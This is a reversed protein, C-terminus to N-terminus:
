LKLSLPDVTDQLQNHALAEYKNSAEIVERFLEIGRNLGHVRQENTRPTPNNVEQRYWLMLKSEHIQINEQARDLAQSTATERQEANATESRNDACGPANFYGSEDTKLPQMNKFDLNRIWDNGARNLAECFEKVSPMTNVEATVETVVPAARDFTVRMAGRAWMAELASIAVDLDADGNVVIKVESM